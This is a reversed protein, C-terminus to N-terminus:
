STSNMVVSAFLNSKLQPINVPPSQYQKWAFGISLCWTSTKIINDSSCICHIIFNMCSGWLQIMVCCPINRQPKICCFLLFSFLSPLKFLRLGCGSSAPRHLEATKGKLKNTTPKIAHIKNSLILPHVTVTLTTSIFLFLSSCFVNKIVASPCYLLGRATYTFVDTLASFLHMCLAAFGHIKQGDGQPDRHSQCFM